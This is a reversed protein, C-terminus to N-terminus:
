GDGDGGAPLPRKGRRPNDLLRAGLTLTIPWGDFKASVHAVGDVMRIDIPRPIDRRRLRRLLRRASASLDRRRTRQRHRAKATGGM